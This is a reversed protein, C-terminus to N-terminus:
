KIEIQKLDKTEILKDAPLKVKLIGDKYEATIEDAKVEEPLTWSREFSSYNYEQRWIEGDKEEKKEDKVEGKIILRDDDVNISFNEKAMGPVVVDLEYGDDKKIINAKVATQPIDRTRNGGLNFFDDNFFDDFISNFFVPSNANRRVLDFM